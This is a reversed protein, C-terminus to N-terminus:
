GNIVLSRKLQWMDLALRWAVYGIQRQRFATDTAIHGRGLDFPLGPHSLHSLWTAYQYSIDYIYLIMYIYIFDYIYLIM